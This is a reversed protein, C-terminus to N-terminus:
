EGGGARWSRCQKRESRRIKEAQRRRRSAATARTPRRARIPRLAGRVLEVFRGVVDARNGSQTRHVQSVLRLRGAGDMRSGLRAILRAKQEESLARSGAVDFLLTARTNVKNVNQGGPGSSRDFVFELERWPIVANAGVRVGASESASM